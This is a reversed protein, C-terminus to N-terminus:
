KNKDLLIKSLTNSFLVMNKGKLLLLIKVSIIKYYFFVILM